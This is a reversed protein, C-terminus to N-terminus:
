YKRTADYTEITKTVITCATDGRQFYSSETTVRRTVNCSELTIGACIIAIGLLIVFTSRM